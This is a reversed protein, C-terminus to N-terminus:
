KVIKRKVLDLCLISKKGDLITNAREIHYIIGLKKVCESIFDHPRLQVIYINFLVTLICGTNVQFTRMM